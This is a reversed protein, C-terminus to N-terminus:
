GNLLAVQQLALLRHVGDTINRCSLTAGSINPIDKGLRLTDELSKGTFNARWDAERVEGGHTERYSLIEVGNVKGDAAIGVAYTIYEHKGVVEDVVFWGQLEGDKEARWVPQTDRRQRVGSIKRIADRQEDTLTVTQEVFHSAEAFLLHRAQVQTLYDTAQVAPAVLAVAPALWLPHWNQSM